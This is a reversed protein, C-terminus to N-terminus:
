LSIQVAGIVITSFRRINRLHTRVFLRKQRISIREIIGLAIDRDRKDRFSVIRGRLEASHLPVPERTYRIGIEELSFEVTHASLFHTKFRELRYRSRRIASKSKVRPPVHIRLIRPSKINRYSMLIHDLEGSKELAIIIDPSLLEIKYQKLVRGFPDSILGTTDVLAKHCMSLARNTILKAGVVSPLLNGVPSLTGTFYFDEVAIDSWNQFKKGVRGWAITTPLGIHSQGMDLDVIGVDTKKAFLDALCEVMTTKGTDSGGMVMILRNRNNNLDRVIKNDKIFEQLNGM